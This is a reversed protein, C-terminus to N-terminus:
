KEKRNACGGYIDELTLKKSNDKSGELIISSMTIKQTNIQQELYELFIREEEPSKDNTLYHKVLDSIEANTVEKKLMKIYQWSINEKGKMGYIRKDCIQKAEKYQKDVILRKVVTRINMEPQTSDLEDLNKLVKEINVLQHESSSDILLTRIQNVIRSYEQEETMAFRSRTRNKQRKAVEQKIIRNANQYDFNGTEISQVIEFTEQSIQNKQESIILHQQRKAIKQEIKNRVTGIFMPNDLAMQAPIKKLLSKLEELNETVEVKYNIAEAFKRGMIRYIKNIVIDIEKQIRIEKLEQTELLEMIKEAQEISLTTNQIQKVYKELNGVTNLKGKLTKGPMESIEQSILLIIKMVKKKEEESQIKEIKKQSTPTTQYLLEQYRGKMEQMKLHAKRDREDRINLLDKDMEANKVLKTTKKAKPEKDKELKEKCENVYEIPVELELAILKPNFRDKLLQVVEEKIRREELQKKCKNVYKIPIELELAIIKPEFGDNLLKIIEEIKIKENM